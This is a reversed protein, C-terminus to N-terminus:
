SPLVDRESRENAPESLQSEEVIWGRCSAAQCRCPIAAAISWNYDITLEEGPKIQRLALLYIHKRKPAGATSEVKTYDFECNPQCCHNVFRFPAHPELVQGDGIDFCHESGYDPDDIVEGKIEGIVASEPYRRRSFIGKGVSTRGVRVSKRHDTRPGVDKSDVDLRPLERDNRAM